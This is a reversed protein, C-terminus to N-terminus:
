LALEITEYDGQPELLREDIPTLLLHIADKLNNVAEDKTKGQSAVWNLEPCVASYQEVEADWELIVRIQMVSEGISYLGVKENDWL